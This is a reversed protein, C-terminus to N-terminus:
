HNGDAVGSRTHVSCRGRRGGRMAAARTGAVSGGARFAAECRTTPLRLQSRVLGGAAGCVVVPLALVEGASRYVFPECFLASEHRVTDGPTPPSHGPRQADWDKEHEGQHECDGEGTARGVVYLWLEIVACVLLTAGACRCTGLRGTTSPSLGPVIVRVRAPRAVLGDWALV